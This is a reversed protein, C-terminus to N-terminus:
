TLMKTYKRKTISFLSGLMLMSMITNTMGSSIFPVNCSIPSLGINFLVSVVCQFTFISIICLSLLKGYDEKVRSAKLYNNILFLLILTVVVIIAILGFSRIGYNLILNNEAEVMFSNEINGELLNVSNFVNKIQLYIYGYGESYEEPNVFALIRDKRYPQSFFVLAGRIM